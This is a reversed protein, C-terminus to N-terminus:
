FKYCIIECNNQQFKSIDQANKNFYLHIAKCIDGHTVILVNKDKYNNKIDNLISETRNIISKFGESDKYIINKTRDYWINSDLTEVNAYVMSNSNREKIRDDYFVLIDKINYIIFLSCSIVETCRILKLNGYWIAISYLIVAFMPLLSIIGIYTILSFIIMLTIILLLWYIPIKKNNYKNFIINRAMCTLNMLSGTYAGLFVYQLAYLFSSFIQYKLLTKKENKQFSLMLVILAFIGIIQAIIFQKTYVINM